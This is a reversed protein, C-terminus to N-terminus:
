KLAKNMLLNIKQELEALKKEQKYLSYPSSVGLQQGVRLEYNTKIWICGDGTQILYQDSEKKLIRGVVGRINFVTPKNVWWIEFLDSGIFAFAGPHPSMAARIQKSILESTLQWDVFGDEPKRIGYETVFRHDQEITKWCGTWLHPLWQDLVISIHKLIKKEVTAATDHERDVSFVSQGLIPGADVGEGPKIQFFTAAGETENLILWAIPARGRSFPLKTPHFGICGIRASKIIVDSVLQSLGVVFIYDYSAQAIKEALDNIRTFGIYGYNNKESYGRLSVFGSVVKGASPEYGYVDVKSFNHRSLGNLVELTSTVGGILAVKLMKKGM